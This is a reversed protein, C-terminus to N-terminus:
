LLGPCFTVRVREGNECAVEFADSCWRLDAEEVAVRGDHRWEAEGAHRQLLLGHEKM